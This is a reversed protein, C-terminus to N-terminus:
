TAVLALGVIGALTVIMGLKQSRTVTQKFVWYSLLVFLVPYSGAIPAIIATSGRVLALNYALSGMVGLAAAGLSPMIAYGIKSRHLSARKAGILLVCILGSVASIYEPWFWGIQEVPIKIFTFYIAWGLMALFALVISRDPRFQRKKLRDLDLSTLTLGCVIIAIALIQPISVSSGLFLISLIVVLGVFSGAITGVISPDGIRLAETFSLYTFTILVGLLASLTVAATVNGHLDFLYFPALLSLIPVCLATVWFTTKFAGIRKSAITGFIDSTGWGITTLLAFAITLMITLIYTM